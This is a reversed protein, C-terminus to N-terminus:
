GHNRFGLVVCQLLLSNEWEVKERMHGLVWIAFRASARLHLTSGAPAYLGTGTPAGERSHKPITTGNIM